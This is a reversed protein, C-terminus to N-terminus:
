RPRERNAKKFAEGEGEHDKRRGSRSRSRRRTSGPGDDAKEFRGDVSPERSAVPTWGFERIQDPGWKVGKKEAQPKKEAFTPEYTPVEQLLSQATFLLTTKPDIPTEKLISAPAIAPSPLRIGSAAPPPPKSAYDDHSIHKDLDDDPKEQPWRQSWGDDKDNRFKGGLIAKAKLVAATAPRSEVM